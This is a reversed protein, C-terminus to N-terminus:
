AKKRKSKRTNKAIEKGKCLFFYAGDYFKITGFPHGPVRFREKLKDVNRKIYIMVRAPARSVRGFAHYHDPQIVDRIIQLAYRPDGYMRVPVYKTQPGLKVAKFTRGDTCRNPCTVAGDGHRIFCSLVSEHTLEISIDM